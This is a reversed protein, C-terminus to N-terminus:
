ASAPRLEYVIVGGERTRTLPLGHVPRQAAREWPTGDVRQTHLVVSRVGVEGLLEVTRPDPFTRVDAILEETFIPDLSSRGNVMDPFGDTSWLLYRRNDEPLEAPLHFQPAAISDFSVPPRPAEPQAQDDFPDFPPGRGEIAIGLVLVAAVAAPAVARAGFRSRDGSRSAIARRLGEAGAGALLALGLSAFTFLRGPVRIGELGPLVEYAIRYPWLLGGETQFGLSLVSVALVGLALGWRLARTYVAALAGGIALAVIILGPFLTQEPVRELDDRLGATAGGWVSNEEPAVLFMWPPGSYSDVVEPTRRINPHEDAVRMYPQSIVAGVGVFIAAGVV